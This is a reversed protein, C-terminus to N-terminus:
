DPTIRTGTEGALALEINEPTSILAEGGGQELYWIIAQIKPAMSGQAFHGEALYQKAQSLTMHDLWEQNPQRYNIAVKEVSTSIIFLEAGIHAALLSAAYDKDIVAAVGKLNGQEDAVVPIGGGGAAIVVFGAQILDKIVKEEVIRVPLPSPVVRRWGRGADEMVQWGRKERREIARAEDM